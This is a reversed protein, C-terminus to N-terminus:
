DQKEFELVSGDEEEFWLEDGTLRLITVEEMYNGYILQLGEKGDSWEWEADITNSITLITTVEQLVGDKEFIMEFSYNDGVPEDDIELLTWTGTLRSTKTVLSFAPGDEYKACSSLIGLTFVAILLISLNKMM